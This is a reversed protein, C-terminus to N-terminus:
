PLAAVLKMRDVQVLHVSGINMRSLQGEAALLAVRGDDRQWVLM